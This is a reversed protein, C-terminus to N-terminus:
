KGKDKTEDYPKRDFLTLERREETCAFVHYGSTPQRLRCGVWKPHRDYLACAGPSARLTMAQKM